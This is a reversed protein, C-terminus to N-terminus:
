PSGEEGEDYLGIAERAIGRSAEVTWPLHQELWCEHSDILLQPANTRRLMQLHRNDDVGEVRGRVHGVQKPGEFLIWTRRPGDPEVCEVRRLGQCVDCVQREHTHCDCWTAWERLREGVEDPTMPEVM